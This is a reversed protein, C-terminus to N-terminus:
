PVLLLKHSSSGTRTVLKLFYLGASVRRGADDRADWSEAYAGPDRTEARLTRIKRGLLNFVSVQVETRETLLYRIQTTGTSPNPALSLPDAATPELKERSGPQRFSVPLDVLKGGRTLAQARLLPAHLMAGPSAASGLPGGSGSAAARLTALTAETSGGDTPLTRPFVFAFGRLSGAADRELPISHTGRAPRELDFAYAGAPLSPDAIRVSVARLAETGLLVLRLDRSDDGGAPARLSEVVLLPEPGAWGPSPILFALFAFVLFRRM